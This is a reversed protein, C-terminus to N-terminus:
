VVKRPLRYSGPKVTFKIRELLEIDGRRIARAEARVDLQAEFLDGPQHGRYCRQGVVRYRAGKGGEM